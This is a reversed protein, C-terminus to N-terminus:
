YKIKTLEPNEIFAYAIIHCIFMHMDEVLGYHLSDIVITQAALKALTGQNGGVLAITDMENENAWQVAKLLNKSNGSVSITFLLDGKEALNELQRFFIDDFCYDNGIATILSINENLSIIKFRKKANDSASKGMDTSFHSMTSASGGNGFVFIRNGNQNAQIYKEIISYIEDISVSGLLETLNQRYSDIWSIVKNKIIQSTNFSKNKEM